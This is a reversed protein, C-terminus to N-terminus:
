KGKRYRVLYVGNQKTGVWISAGPGPSLSTVEFSFSGDPGNLPILSLDKADFAFLGAESAVYITGKDDLIDNVRKTKVSTSIESIGDESLIMVGSSETGLFLGSDGETIATVTKKGLEDIWGTRGYSEGGIIKVGTMKSKSDSMGLVITGDSLPYISTISVDRLIEHYGSKPDDLWFFGRDSGM